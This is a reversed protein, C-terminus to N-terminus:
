CFSFSVMMQESKVSSIKHIGWRSVRKKGGHRGWSGTSGQIRKTDLLEVGLSSKVEGDEKLCSNWPRYYRAYRKSVM